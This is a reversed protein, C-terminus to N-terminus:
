SRSTVAREDPELQLTSAGNILDNTRQSENCDAINSSDASCAADGRQCRGYGTPDDLRATLLTVAAGNSRHQELWPKSPSPQAPASAMSCLCNACQFASHDLLQQVSTARATRPSTACLIGLGPYGALSGRWGSASPRLIAPPSRRLSECAASFGSWCASVPWSQLVKRRKNVAKM